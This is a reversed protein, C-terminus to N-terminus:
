LPAGCGACTAGKSEGKKRGCYRCPKDGPFVVQDCRLRDVSITGARILKPGYASQATISIDPVSTNIYYQLADAAHDMEIMAGPKCAELFRKEILSKWARRPTSVVMM